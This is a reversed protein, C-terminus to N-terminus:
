RFSFLVFIMKNGGCAGCFALVYWRGCLLVELADVWGGSLSYILWRILCLRLCGLVASFLMGYPAHLRVISFFIIWLSGIGKACAARILWLSM